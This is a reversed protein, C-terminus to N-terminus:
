EAALVFGLPGIEAIGKEIDSETLSFAHLIGKENCASEDSLPFQAVVKLWRIGLHCTACVHVRQENRARSRGAAKNQPVSRHSLVAIRCGYSSSSIEM